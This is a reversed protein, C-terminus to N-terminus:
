RGFSRPKFRPLERKANAIRAVKANETMFMQLQRRRELAFARRPTGYRTRNLLDKAAAVADPSRGAISDLLDLAPKLPEDDVGTVLGYELAQNGDIVEATMTLRRAIDDGVIERLGVTGSMDPILGWKAELVSWQADPTSFRFDAATAFQLGAGYCHGHVVAAVPVPVDRWAWAARQFLNQGNWPAPIFGRVIDVPKKSVSAFDLGASFSEGRGSLVVGRVDRNAKISSAAAVLGKLIPLDVANLKAPRNLWVYAIPGDLEVEVSRETMARAYRFLSATM